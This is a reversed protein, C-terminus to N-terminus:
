ASVLVSSFKRVNDDDKLICNVTELRKISHSLDQMQRASDINLQKNKDLIVTQANKLIRKPLNQPLGGDEKIKPSLPDFM